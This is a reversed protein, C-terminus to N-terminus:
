AIWQGSVVHQVQVDSESERLIGLLEGPSLPTFLDHWEDREVVTWQEGEPLTQRLTHLMANVEAQAGYIRYAPRHQNSAATMATLTEEWDM